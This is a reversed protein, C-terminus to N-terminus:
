RPGRTVPSRVRSRNRATGMARPRRARTPAHGGDPVFSVGHRECDERAPRDQRHIRRPRRGARDDDVAVANDVDPRGTQEVAIRLRLDDIKGAARKHRAEDVRVCVQADSRQM